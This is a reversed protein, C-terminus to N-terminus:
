FHWAVGISYMDASSSSGGNIKQFEARLSMSNIQYQAGFGYAFDSSHHSESLSAMGVPVCSTGNFNCSNPYNCNSDTKTNLSAYGVKGFLDWGHPLPLYGVFHVGFADNKASAKYTINGTGDDQNHMAVTGFDIYNIEAGIYKAPRIGAFVAWGTTSDAIDYRWIPTQVWTTATASGVEAGVYIGSKGPEEASAVGIFAALGVFAVSYITRM